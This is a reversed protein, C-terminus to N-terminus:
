DGVTRDVAGSVQKAGSISPLPSQGVAGKGAGQELALQRLERQVDRPIDEAQLNLNVGVHAERSTVNGTILLFKDMLKTLGVPDVQQGRVFHRNGSEPDTVWRDKLNHGLSIVSAHFMELFDSEIVAIKEARKEALYEVSREQEIQVYRERQAEWDHRKAYAAITSPAAGVSEALQRFSTGHEVYAMRLPEYEYQPKSGGGAM